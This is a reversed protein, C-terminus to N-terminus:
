CIKRYFNNCLNNCFIPMSFSYFESNQMYVLAPRGTALYHGAALGIANGENATITHNKANDTVYACFNKLLSDPVGCFCDIGNDSLINYFDQVNM